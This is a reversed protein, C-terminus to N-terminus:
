SSPEGLVALHYMEPDRTSPDGGLDRLIAELLIVTMAQLYGRHSLATNLLGHALVRQEASMEKIPLGRRGGKSELMSSPFYHWSTRKESAFEISVKERQKEDLSRLFRDAAEAMEEAVDHGLVVAPEAWFGMLAIALVAVVRRRRCLPEASM